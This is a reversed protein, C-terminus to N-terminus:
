EMMQGSLSIVSMFQMMAMQIAEFSKEMLLLAGITVETM